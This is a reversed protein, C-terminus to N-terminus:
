SHYRVESSIRKSILGTKLATNLGDPDPIRPQHITQYGLATESLVLEAPKM